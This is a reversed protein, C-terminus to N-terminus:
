PNLVMAIGIKLKYASFSFVKEISAYIFIFITKNYYPKEIRQIGKPKHAWFIVASREDFIKKFSRETFSEM